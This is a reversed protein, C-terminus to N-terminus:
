YRKRPIKRRTKRSTNSRSLRTTEGTYARKNQDATEQNNDIVEIFQDRYFLVIYLVPVVLRAIILPVSYYKVAPSIFSFAGMVLVSVLYAIGVLYIFKNWNIHHNM